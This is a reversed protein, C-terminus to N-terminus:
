QRSSTSPRSKSRLLAIRLTYDAPTADPPVPLRSEHIPSHDVGFAPHLLGSGTVTGALKLFNRRSTLTGSM